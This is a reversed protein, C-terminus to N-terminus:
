TEAAITATPNPSCWQRAVTLTKMVPTFAFDGLFKGQYDTMMCIGDLKLTDLAYAIERLTNEVDPMPVTAFM